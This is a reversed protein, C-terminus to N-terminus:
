AGHVGWCCDDPPPGSAQLWTVVSENRELHKVMSRSCPLAEHPWPEGSHVIVFGEMEVRKMGWVGDVCSYARGRTRHLMGNEPVDGWIFPAFGARWCVLLDKCQCGHRSVVLLGSSTIIGCAQHMCNGCGAIDHPL